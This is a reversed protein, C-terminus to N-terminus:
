DADDRLETTKSANHSFFGILLAPLIIVLAVLIYPLLNTFAMQQLSFGLINERWRLDMQDLDLGYVEKLGENCGLGDRYQATLNYLKEAGGTKILYSVFSESQAYALFAGSAETPFSGCLNQMPILKEEDAARNLARQYDQNPKTEVYSAIGELLWPPLKDYAPGLAQYLQLHMIEHPIQRGLEFRAEPSPSISVIVLGIEPNSSGAVWQEGSLTLATQMDDSTSYVLIKVPTSLTGPIISLAQKQGENAANLIAQGFALDGAYWYVQFTGDNLTQWAYRNDRYDLVFPQTSWTSGDSQIFSFYYEVSTFPRLPHVKLDYRYKIQSDDQIDVPITQIDSGETRVSLYANKVPENFKFSANFDLFEGYQYSTQQNVIEIGPNSTTQFLGTVVAQLSFIILLLTRM